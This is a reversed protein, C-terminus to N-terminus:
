FSFGYDEFLTRARVKALAPRMEFRHSTNEINTLLRLNRPDNSIVRFDAWTVPEKADRAAQRLAKYPIIHDIDWISRMKGNRLTIKKDLSYSKKSVASRVLGRPTRQHIALLARMRSPSGTWSPRQDPRRALCPAEVNHSLVQPGAFYNHNQAVGFNFVRRPGTRTQASEIVATGGNRRLIPDGAVLDRAEVWGQGPVFFPHEPTTELRDGGALNIVLIETAVRTFVREVAKLETAGTTENHSWVEDGVAIEEIARAGEGTQISTGSAFSAGCVAGSGAARESEELGSNLQRALSRRLARFGAGMARTAAGFIVGMAFGELFSQGIEKFGGGGMASFAANETGGILGEMVLTAALSLEAEAVVAGAAGGLGGIVAGGIIGAWTKGSRWDWHAPNFDHNVAAGGALAGILAGIVIAALIAFDGDPDYHAEPDNAGYIYPSDYQWAADPSIFRGVGADYYRGGFYYLQSESDLEKGAFKSRSDDSGSSAKQAIEGFPDYVFRTQEEGSANTVLATSFVHDQHFYRLGEVPVGPGNPGPKVEAHLPRQLGTGFVVLIMLTATWRRAFGRRGVRALATLQTLIVAIIGRSRRVRFWGLLGCAVLLLTGQADSQSTPAATAASLRASKKTISAVLGGPGHIYKTHLIAGTATQLVEYGPSVYYTTSGDASIKKIRQGGDDYTFRDRLASSSPSTGQRVASLQQLADFEYFWQQGSDDAPRAVINGNPDYKVATQMGSIAVIQNKKNPDYKYVRENKKQLNGNADYQYTATPYPGKATTLRGADDYTFSQGHTPAARDGISLLKDAQNWSYQNDLYVTAGKATRATSRRGLVDFSYDSRVGNGYSVTRPQGLADYNLYEVLTQPSKAGSETLQISGPQNAPTYNVRLVAGDPYTMTEPSGDPRHTVRTTYTTQDITRTEKNINGYADYEFLTSIEPTKISYLRGLGNPIRADYQYDTTTAVAGAADYVTQRVIRNLADYENQTIQGTTNKETRINGAADYEYAVKGRDPSTILRVRGISDLVYDTRMGLPDIKATRRGLIDYEFRSTGGDPGVSKEVLGRSDLYEVRSVTSSKGTVPGKPSPTTTTVTRDAHHDDESGFEVTKSLTAGNPRIIEKPYNRVDYTRTVYQPTEDEFYAMSQRWTRGAEDFFVTQAISKGDSPGRSVHRFERELGDTYTAERYWKSVDNQNWDTRTRETVIESGDGGSAYAYTALVVTKGSPDPGSFEMLRGFGDYASKSVQGNPGTSSIIQGFAPDYTSRAVLPGGTSPALPDAQSFSCEKNIGPAPDGGFGTADCTAYKIALQYYWSKNKGYRVLRRGEFKCTGGEVACPASWATGAPPPSAITVPFSLYNEDYLTVTTNGRADTTTVQNGVIDYSYVSGIWTGPATDVYTQESLLNGRRDYLTRDWSADVSSKWDQFNACSKTDGSIKTAVAYGIVWQKEDNAYQTCTYVVADNETRDGFDSVRIVNAYKDYEFTKVLTYAVSGGDFQTLTSSDRTTQYVGPYPVSKSYEYSKKQLPIQGAFIEVSEITGVYPFDLNHETTTTVGSSEDLLKVELFGLWGRGHRDVRAGSYSHSFAYQHSGDNRDPRGDHILHRSVVPLSTVVDAQPYQAGSGRSYVATNTLTEYEIRTNAGLGDRITEILDLSSRNTALYYKRTDSRLYLMDALGDGDLDELWQANVGDWAVGHDRELWLALPKFKTGTNIAAYYKGTDAKKYLFDPLDDGNLDKVWQGLGDWGVGGSGRKLWLAPQEFGTGRNIAAYYEAAGNKKYFFDLLGDGNLDTLWQSYKGDWGVQVKSFVEVPKSFGKASNLAVYYRGSPFILYPSISVVEGATYFLDPLGDGNLDELWQANEGGWPLPDKADLWLTAQAFGSSTNIAAFYQSKDARRYLLDPRGDGNLDQLWQCYKGDERALDHDRTLWLKEATFGSGTNLAVYYERKGERKYMFDPLGDDNLDTLWQYNAGNKAVNHKRTLWLSEAGFKRGNSLAARFEETGERIYLLDPRGDDNLDRLWQSNKGEWKLDYKRTLWVTERAIGEGQFLAGRYEREGERKYLLDPRGDGNLDELWQFNRGDDPVAYSREFVVKPDDFGAPAPATSRWTFLTPNLCNGTADCEQLSRLLSRGTVPSLAYALNYSKVRREDVFTAITRLRWVRESYVGGLYQKASDPRSEYEFRVSRRAQLGAARNGTYNIRAIRYSGQPRDHEYAVTVDNGNRDTTRAVGWALITPNTQGRIRSNDDPGFEQRIGAKTTVTFSCPGVGCQSNTHSVVRTWSERETHYVTGDAGYVGQISILRAGDLCFRDGDSLNVGGQFEDQAITRPCRTITSIGSLAFGMGALGDHNQSNYKLSLQPELEGTGPPVEVPVVYEAGGNGNVTFHAQTAGSVPSKQDARLVPSAGGSIFLIFTLLILKKRM